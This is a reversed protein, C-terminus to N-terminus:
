RRNPCGPSRSRPRTSSPAERHEGDPERRPGEAPGCRSRTPTAKPTTWRGTDRRSRTCSRAAAPSRARGALSPFAVVASREPVKRSRPWTRHAARRGGDTGRPCRTMGASAERASQVLRCWRRRLIPWRRKPTPDQRRACDVLTSGATGAPRAAIRCRIHSGVPMASLQQTRLLAQDAEQMPRMERRAATASRVRRGEACPRSGVAAAPSSARVPGKGRGPSRAPRTGSRSM